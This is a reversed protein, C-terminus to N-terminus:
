KKFKSPLTIKDTIEKIIKMRGGKTVINLRGIPFCGSKGRTWGWFLTKAPNETRAHQGVFIATYFSIETNRAVAVDEHTNASLRYSSPESGRYPNIVRNARRASRGQRDILISVRRRRARRSRDAFDIYIIVGRWMPSHSFVSRYGRKSRIRLRTLNALRVM